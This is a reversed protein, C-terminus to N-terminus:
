SGEAPVSQMLNAHQLASQEGETSMQPPPNSLNSNSSTANSLRKNAGSKNGIIDDGHQVFREAIERTIERMRSVRTASTIRSSAEGFVGWWQDAKQLLEPRFTTTIIQTPTGPPKANIPDVQLRGHSLDDILAAVSARYAGDLNADVEDFLYFPAPDCQQIAFIIALAVLSKQGGSLQHMLMGDDQDSVDSNSSSHPRLNTKTFSVRVSVGTFGLVPPVQSDAIIMHNLNTSLERVM